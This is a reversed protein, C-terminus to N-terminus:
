KATKANERESWARARQVIKRATAPTVELTDAVVRYGGLAFCELAAEYREYTGANRQKRTARASQIRSLKEESFRSWVWRAVSNSISRVESNSLPTPFEANLERAKESVGMLFWDWGGSEVSVRWWHYAFSRLEDFLAMNRGEASVDVHVPKKRDTASPHKTFHNALDTLSYPDDHLWQTRQGGHLPNRMTRGTYFPDGGTRGALKRRVDEAYELTRRNTAPVSLWWGVHAHGSGENVTVFSPLPIVEDDYVRSQIHWSADGLEVDDLDVVLLNRVSRPSTEIYRMGLAASREHRYMGDRFTNTALPRRSLYRNAFQTTM